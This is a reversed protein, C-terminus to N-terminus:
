KGGRITEHGTEDEGLRSQAARSRESSGIQGDDRRGRGGSGCKRPFHLSKSNREGGRRRQVISFLSFSRWFWHQCLFGPIQWTRQSLYLDCDQCCLENSMCTEGSSHLAMLDFARESFLHPPYISNPAAAASAVLSEWPPMRM